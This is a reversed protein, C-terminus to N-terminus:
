VQALVREPACAEDYLASVSAAIAPWGLRLISPRAQARLHDLCQPSALLADICAAFQAPTRQYLLAGNEGDRIISPLGGVAPAIVPTGCALAEVAVMGFSEYHSAVTLLDAARYYDPLADQPAADAFRIRQAIGMERALARLRRREPDHADGGLLVLTAQERLLPLTRVLLEAGKLPDLRGVYLLLPEDGLRLMQRIQARAEERGAPTFRALDVGCPIIHLHCRPAGYLRAIQTREDDTAVIVRDSQAIIRREEEARLPLEHEAPRAAQKLCALTHFMAVHPAGWRRALDLGAVGSLWYHSHIIDYEARETVAFCDIGSAFAATHAYLENKPLPAIPGAPIHILRARTGLPLIQPLNPDTWRTFIDVTVGRRGLHKALERVYVNMGGADRSRGPMALPSTHLSLLAVRRAGPLDMRECIRPWRGESSQLLALSSEATPMATM